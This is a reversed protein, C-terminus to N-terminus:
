VVALAGLLRCGDPVGWGSVADFGHKAKYGPHLRSANHGLVIDRFGVAGVGPKYLLPPLFRQRKSPPLAANIRAILSAWLPTAASTGGNHDTKGDFLVCYYPRGALASVDPVVRGFRAGPNLSRIKVGQWPARPFRSVGGGTIAGQRSRGRWAEEVHGRHSLMTGGVSLAYPSSSPFEVHCRRGSQYCGSGDDGSSVCVTIGMLAAIQLRENIATKAGRSWGSSDEAAGYSMSVVVPIPGSGSTVADLLNVFGGEDLTAFYIRIDAKPCLAAVIQADM